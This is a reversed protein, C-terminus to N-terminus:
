FRALLRWYLGSAPLAAIGPGSGTPYRTLRRVAEVDIEFRPSPIFRLGIGASRLRRGHDERPTEWTQAWDYFAYFQTSIETSAGFLDIENVMNLQLELTAALANDGTVQGYYFGRSLRSGGLFFKEASPLVDRTYQGAIVGQLALVAGDWPQLLTQTRSLDASFKRFGPQQGARSALLADFRSAGLATLGQGVRVSLTTVASRTDGAILDSVAYDAGLRLVRLADRSPPGTQSVTAEIVDFAGLLNITQRRSRILPYSLETGFLSTTGRYEISRFSGTPTSVGHGAYLRIRLGSGGIFSDLTAQGFVQAGNLTRYLQLQTHEGYESFSNFDAVGLLQEPGVNRFARNDATIQGTIAQRTVQAVLTLAGPEEASPRLVASLSIGPVDGALLLARELTATDIVQKLTLRELFRLVQVGASGTDGDLRVAAIRGETVRLRLLGDPEVIATVATLAFGDNRYRRLVALRAADIAAVAVTEGALGAVLDAFDDAAYVTMGEIAVRRILIRVDPMAGDADEEPAAPAAPALGPASPPAIGPLPTAPAPPRPPSSQALSPAATAAGILVAAIFIARSTRM